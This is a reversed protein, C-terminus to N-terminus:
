LLSILLPSPLLRSIIANPSGAQSATNHHIANPFRASNANFPCSRISCTSHHMILYSTYLTSHNHIPSTVNSGDQPLHPPLSSPSLPHLCHPNPSHIRQASM